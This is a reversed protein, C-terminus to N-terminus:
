QPLRGFGEVDSDLSEALAPIVYAWAFLAIAAISGAVAALVSRHMGLSMLAAGICLVAIIPAITQALRVRRRLQKARDLRAARARNVNGMLDGWRKTPDTEHDNM